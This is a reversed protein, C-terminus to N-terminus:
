GGPLPLGSIEDLGNLAVPLHSPRTRHIHQASPIILALAKATHEGLSQALALESYCHSTSFYAQERSVSPFGDLFQDLSDGAKLHIISLSDVPIASYGHAFTM